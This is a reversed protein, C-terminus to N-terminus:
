EPGWSGTFFGSQRRVAESALTAPSGPWRRTIDVMAEVVSVDLGTLSAHAAGGMGLRHQNRLLYNINLTVIAGQRRDTLPRLRPRLAAALVLLPIEFLQHSEHAGVNMVFFAHVTFAGLAAAIALNSARRTVWMAWADAAVVATTGIPRPNPYGLEIFRSIALPVRSSQSIPGGASKM